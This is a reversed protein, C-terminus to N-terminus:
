WQLIVLRCHDHARHVSYPGLSLRNRILSTVRYPPLHVEEDDDPPLGGGAMPFLSPPVMNFLVNLPLVQM